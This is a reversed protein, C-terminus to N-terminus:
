GGFTNTLKQVYYKGDKKSIDLTYHENNELSADKDKMLVEVKAIYHNDGKTYLRSERWEAVERTGDAADSKYLLYTIALSSGKVYVAGS